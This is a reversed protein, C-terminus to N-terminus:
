LWNLRAIYKSRKTPRLDCHILRGSQDAQRDKESDNQSM